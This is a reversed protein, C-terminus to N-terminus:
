QPKRFQNPSHVNLILRFALIIFYIFFLLPSPHSFTTSTKLHLSFAPWSLARPSCAYILDWLCFPSKWSLLVWAFVLFPRLVLSAPNYHSILTTDGARHLVQLYLLTFFCYKSQLVIISSLFAFHENLLLYYCWGNELGPVCIM